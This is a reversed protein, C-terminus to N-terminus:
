PGSEREAAGAGGRRAVSCIAEWLADGLRVLDAREAESCGRLIMSVGTLMAAVRQEACGDFREHATEVLGRAAPLIVAPDLLEAFLREMDSM